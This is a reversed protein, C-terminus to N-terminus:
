QAGARPHAEVALDLRQSAADHEAFGVWYLRYGAEEIVLDCIQRLLTLEDTARILAENWRSLARNTRNLRRM